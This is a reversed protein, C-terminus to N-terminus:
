ILVFLSLQEKTQQKKGVNLIAVIVFFLMLMDMVWATYFSLSYLLFPGSGMQECRELIAVM